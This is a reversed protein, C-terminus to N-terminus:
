ESSGYFILNFSTQVTSGNKFEIRVERACIPVKFAVPDNATYVTSDNGYFNVGDDSFEVYLTGTQDAQCIGKIYNFSDVNYVSSTYTASAALPTSTKELLILAVRDQLISM